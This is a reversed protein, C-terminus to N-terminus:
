RRRRAFVVIGFGLLALTTPEPAAASVPTLSIDDLGFDNDFSATNTNILVLNATTAGGSNWSRVSQQWITKPSPAAITTGVLASNIFLQFNAPSVATGAGAGWSSVWISFDYNTAAAVSVSQSWVTVNATTAGNGIFYLGTGTTHDGYSPAAGNFLQANTNVGYQGETTNTTAFQLGSTFATNGSSFNGNVILNQANVPAALAFLVTVAAFLIHPRQGVASRLMM